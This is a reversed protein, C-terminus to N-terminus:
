NYNEIHKKYNNFATIDYNVMFNPSIENLMTRAHIEKVIEFLIRTFKNCEGNDITKFTAKSVYKRIKPILALIETMFEAIDHESSQNNYSMRLKADDFVTFNIYEVM